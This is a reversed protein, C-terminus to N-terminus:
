VLWQDIDALILEAQAKVHNARIYKKVWLVIHDKFMGKILQHLINPALLEHIDARLFTM